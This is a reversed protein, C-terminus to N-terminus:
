RTAKGLMKHAMRLALAVTTLTSNSVGGTPFAGASALYLGKVEHAELLDDTVSTEPDSGMSHGGMFHGSVTPAVILEVDEAGLADLIRRMVRSIEEFGRREYEGMLRFQIKAAPQGHRDRVRESLSIRNDDNPLQELFAGLTVFRGFTESIERRLAEGWLGSQRAIEPVSPGSDERVLLRGGSWDGRLRHDHFQYTTATEFGQRYPDLKARVRGRVYFKPHEMFAMGLRGNNNALGRPFAGTASNLLIRVIEVCQTALVIREAQVAQQRSDRDVYVVRRTRRRSDVEVRIVCAQTVLTFNSLRQLRRITQDAAYL